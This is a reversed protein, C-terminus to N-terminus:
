GKCGAQGYLGRSSFWLGGARAVEPEALKRSAEEGAFCPLNRLGEVSKLDFVTLM